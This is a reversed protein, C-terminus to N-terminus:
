LGFKRALALQEVLAALNAESWEGMLALQLWNRAVLYSSDCGVLYGAAQLRAGLDRAVLPAPVQITLVGPAALAEKAIITFGLDRLKRRLATGASATRAYKGPWDTSALAAQLAYVLNSSTTFPAGEQAAYYRLDLYRPPPAKAPEALAEHFVMSLGPFSALGKGSVCSALSVGELDVPLTGVSSICDMCLSMSQAACIRKLVALDNLVGTSTECHVAWLWDARRERLAGYDLPEGWAARLVEFSLGQRAAHDVLREGFEGNSMVLGQGGRLALEAAIADNALTGSGLLIEVDRAGTLGCLMRKVARFDASFRRSRHSVPSRAFAARVRSSVAVPGCLYSAPEPPAAILADPGRLFGELELYMPQFRAEGAGVLPGFPVFGIHQYLPLQRTTGCILALDCGQDRFHDALRAALGAFVPGKRREKEVALLRIEFPVRGAPLHRDLDGLKADLSFPRRARGCIMGVLRGAQLCVVYTNEAHFRDMLRGDAGAPHQPIEEVFTRHNLRHIAEFEAAETAIKFQLCSERTM